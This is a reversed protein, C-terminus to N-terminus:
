DWREETTFEDESAEAKFRRRVDRHVYEHCDNCLSYLNRVREGDKDIFILYKYEPYEDVHFHHHVLKAKTRKRPSDPDPLYNGNCRQCEFHDMKLVKMRLEKWETRKYEQGRAM